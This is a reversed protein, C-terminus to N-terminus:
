DKETKDDGSRGRGRGKGSDKNPDKISGKGSNGTREAIAARVEDEDAPRRGEARQEALDRRVQEATHEGNTLHWDTLLGFPYSGGAATQSLEAHCHMPFHQEAVKPHNDNLPPFADYGTHAPLIVSVRQLGEVRQVDKEWVLGAREPRGNREVPFVHNGHWHLSHTAIGVNICRILVGAVADTGSQLPVVPVTFNNNLTANVGTEGNILFYRPLFKNLPFDLRSERRRRRAYEGLVPDVQSLVWALQTRLEATIDVRGPAPAYPLLRNDVGTPLVIFAGAMGLLRNMRNADRYIYTGASPATFAIEKTEHSAIEIPGVVPDTAEENDTREILFWHTRPTDNTLVVVVQDGEFVDRGKIGPGTNGIAPGPIQPRDDNSETRRFGRFFVPTGDVMPLEGETITLRFPDPAADASAARMTGIGAVAVGTAAGMQIFNRRTTGSTAPPAPAVPRERSRLLAVATAAPTAFTLTMLLARGADAPSATAALVVLAVGLALSLAVAAATQSPTRTM